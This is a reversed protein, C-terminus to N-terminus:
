EFGFRDMKCCTIFKINYFSKLTLVFFNGKSTAAQKCCIELDGFNVISNLVNAALGQFMCLSFILKSFHFSISQQNKRLNYM